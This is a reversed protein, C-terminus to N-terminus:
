LFLHAATPRQRELRGASEGWIQAGGTCCVERQAPTLAGGDVQEMEGLQGPTIGSEKERSRKEM